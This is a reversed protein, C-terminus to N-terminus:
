KWKSAETPIIAIVARRSVSLSAPDDLKTNELPGNNALENIGGTTGWRRIVRAGAIYVWEETVDVDGVWVHGRDAVVIAHGTPQSHSPKAHTPQGCLLERLDALSLEM